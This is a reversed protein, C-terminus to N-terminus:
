RKASEKEEYYGAGNSSDGVKGRQNNTMSEIKEIIAFHIRNSRCEEDMKSLIM